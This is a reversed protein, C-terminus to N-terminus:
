SFMDVEIRRETPLLRAGSAMLADYVARKEALKAEFTTAAAVIADQIIPDPYVRITVMPLGSSYSIHDMWSRESVLLGTQAQLVFDPHIKDAAAFEILAEIQLAQNRSKAELLGEDGDIVGDPSYGITFGWKDNTVFGVEKVPAYEKSYRDRAEIEDERGRLMADGVYTPEVYGSIRQALLEYLHRREKDNSAVKLTPTIIKHMESATLIGRRMEYWEDSGQVVEPHYTVTM